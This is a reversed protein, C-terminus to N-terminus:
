LSDIYKRLLQIHIPSTGCCGGVIKAGAKIMKKVDSVFEEPPQDYTTTGGELRPQGANPKVSVPYDTLKTIMQVLEVMDTSGLTCNTGIVDVNEAELSSICQELSDGMITFFGRKTKRYTMSTILPKDSIKKVARIASLMEEIDSMTEIHWLDVGKALVEAQKQFGIQWQEGTATGVPPRFEGSPGIDGVILRGQPRVKEINKLAQTNIDIIRDGLQYRELNIRNSGFTCSQVMDSGVDYYSKLIEQVMESQEVNLIDPVKGPEIGRKFIETGMAGDFLIIKSDEALWDEFM